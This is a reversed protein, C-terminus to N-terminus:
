GRLEVHWPEGPVPFSLGLEAALRAAKANKQLSVGGINVDAANGSEHNSSGPKAALNGTGNLYKQYLVEQEQRSRHGSIIQLKEGMREGLQALRDLLKPDLGEVDGTLWKGIKAKDAPGSSGSGQAAQAGASADSRGSSGRKRRALPAGDAGQAVSGSGSMCGCSCGGQAPGGASVAADGAPAPPAAGATGAVAAPQLSQVVQQLASVLQQLVPLLAEPSSVGAAGAIAAGGAGATSAAGGQSGAVAADQGGTAGAAAGATASAPPQLPGGGTSTAIPAVAGSTTCSM